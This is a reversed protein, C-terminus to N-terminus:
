SELQAVHNHAHSPIPHDQYGWGGGTFRSGLKTMHTTTLIITGKQIGIIIRCRANLAGLFPRYNQCGGMHCNRPGLNPPQTIWISQNNIPDRDAEVDVWDGNFKRRGEM